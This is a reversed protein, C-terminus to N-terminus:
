PSTAWTLIIAKDADPINGTLGPMRGATGEPLNIRRNIESKYTLANIFGGRTSYPRGAHCSDCYQTLKPQVRTLFDSEAPSLTSAGPIPVNDVPGTGVIMEGPLAEVNATITLKQGPSVKTSIEVTESGKRFRYETIPTGGEGTISIISDVKNALKVPFYESGTGKNVFNEFTTTYSADCISGFAGGTAEQLKIELDRKPAKTPNTELVPTVGVVTCGGKDPALASVAFSGERDSALGLVDTTEYADAAPDVAILLVAVFRDPSLLGGLLGGGEKKAEQLISALVTGSQATSSIQGNSTSPRGIAMSFRTIFASHFDNSTMEEAALAPKEAWADTANVIPAATEPATVTDTKNLDVYAHDFMAVQVSGTISALNWIKSTLIPLSTLLRTNYPRGGTNRTAGDRIILITVPKRKYDAVLEFTKPGVPTATVLPAAEAPAAASEDSKEKSGLIKDVGCSHVSLFTVMSLSWMAAASGRRQEMKKLRKPSGNAM